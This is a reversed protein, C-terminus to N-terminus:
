ARSDARSGVPPSVELAVTGGNREEEHVRFVRLACADNCPRADTIGVAFAATPLRSGLLRDMAAISHGRQVNDDVIVLLGSRPVPAATRVFGALVENVTRRAGRTKPEVPRRQVALVRVQGLGAGALAHCLRLTPFRATEVASATTESSPIPVLTIEDPNGGLFRALRLHKAGVIATVYEIANNRDVMVARPHAPHKAHAIPQPRNPPDRNDKIAYILGRMASANPTAKAAEAGAAYYTGLAVGKITRM